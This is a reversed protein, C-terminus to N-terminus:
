SGVVIEKDGEHARKGPHQAQQKPWRLRKKMVQKKADRYRKEGV